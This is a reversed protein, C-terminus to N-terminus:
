PDLIRHPQVQGAGSGAAGGAGGHVGAAAIRLDMQLSQHISPAAILAAVAAMAAPETMRTWARLQAALARAAVAGFVCAMPVLPLACRFFVSAAAITATGAIAVVSRAILAPHAGTLAIGAAKAVGFAAALVYLTLSPWHFFHPNPDGNLIAVAHGIATSEDPRAHPYPLGFDIAYFRLVAGLALMGALPLAARLRPAM